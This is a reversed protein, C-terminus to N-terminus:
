HLVFWFGHVVFVLSVLFWSDNSRAPRRKPTIVPTPVRTPVELLAVDRSLIDAELLPPPPIGEDTTIRETTMAAAASPSGRGEMEESIQVAVAEMHHERRVWGARELKWERM